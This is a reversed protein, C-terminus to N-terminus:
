LRQRVVIPLRQRFERRTYREYYYWVSSFPLFALLIFRLPRIEYRVAQYIMWLMAVSNVSSLLPFPPELGFNWGLNRLLTGDFVDLFIYILLCILAPLWAFLFSRVPLDYLREDRVRRLTRLPLAAELIQTVIEGALVEDEPQVLLRIDKGEEDVTRSLIGLEKLSDVVFQLRDVDRGKWVEVTAMLPNSHLRLKTDM